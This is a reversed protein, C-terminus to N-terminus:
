YPTGDKAFLHYKGDRKEAVLDVDPYVCYEEDARTGIELYRVPASSRNVLHHGDPAGAPFGAAMGPGLIQEGADTILTAEGELIFVFEDEDRHYHRLASAAGPALTTLNVGFQTLGLPNGLARKERGKTIDAFQAPYVTTLRPEVTEPDLAPPRLANGSSM